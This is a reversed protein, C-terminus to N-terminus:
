KRTLEQYKLFDSESGEIDGIIKKLDGRNKYYNATEHCLEILKSTV